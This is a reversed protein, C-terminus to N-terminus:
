VVAWSCILGTANFYAINIKLLVGYVVRVKCWLYISAGRPRWHTQCKIPFIIYKTQEWDGLIGTEM